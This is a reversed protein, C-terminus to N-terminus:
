QRKKQAAAIRARLRKAKEKAEVDWLSFNHEIAYLDARHIEMCLLEALVGTRARLQTSWLLAESVFAKRRGAAVEIVAKYARFNDNYNCSRMTLTEQGPDPPSGTHNYYRKM